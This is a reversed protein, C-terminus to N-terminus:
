YTCYWNDEPKKSEHSYVGYKSGGYSYKSGKGDHHGYAAVPLDSNKSFPHAGEISIDKSTNKGTGLDVRGLRAARSSKFCKEKFEVLDDERIRM